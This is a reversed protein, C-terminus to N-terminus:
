SNKKQVGSVCFGSESKEQGGPLLSTLTLYLIQQHKNSKEVDAIQPYSCELDIPVQFQLNYTRETEM